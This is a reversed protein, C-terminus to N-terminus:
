RDLQGSRAAALLTGLDVGLTPGAPNKSDRVEGDYALEVCAGENQSRAAKRWRREQQPVTM